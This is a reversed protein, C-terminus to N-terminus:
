QKPPEDASSTDYTSTITYFGVFYKIAGLGLKEKDPFCVEAGGDTKRSSVLDAVLGGPDGM